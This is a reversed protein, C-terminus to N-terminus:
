GEMCSGYSCPDFEKSSAEHIRLAFWGKSPTKVIALIQWFTWTGSVSRGCGVFVNCCLLSRFIRTHIYSSSDNVQAVVATIVLTRGIEIKNKITSIITSVISPKVSMMM